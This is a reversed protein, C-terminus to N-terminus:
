ILIFSQRFSKTGGEWIKLGEWMGDTGLSTDIYINELASLDAAEAAAPAVIDARAASATRSGVM